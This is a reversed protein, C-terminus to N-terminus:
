DLKKSSLHSETACLLKCLNSSAKFALPASQTAEYKKAEREDEEGGIAPGPRASAHGARDLVRAVGYNRIGCYACGIDCGSDLM